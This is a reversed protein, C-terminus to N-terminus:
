YFALALALTCAVDPPVSPAQVLRLFYPIVPDALETMYARSLRGIRLGESINVCSRGRRWYLVKFVTV